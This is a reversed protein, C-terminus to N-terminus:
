YCISATIRHTLQLIKKDLTYDRPQEKGNTAYIDSFTELLNGEKDFLRFTIKIISENPGWLHNSIFLDVNVNYTFSIKNTKPYLVARGSVHSKIYNTSSSVRPGDASFYLTRIDNDLAYVTNSCVCSAFLGGLVFLWPFYLPKKHREGKNKEEGSSIVMIKSTPVLPCHTHIILSERQSDSEPQVVSTDRKSREEDMAKAISKDRNLRNVRQLATMSRVEQPFRQHIISFFCCSLRKKLTDVIPSTNKECLLQCCNQPCRSLIRM